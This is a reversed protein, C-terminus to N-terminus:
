LIQSWILFTSPNYLPNGLNVVRCEQHNGLLSTHASKAIRVLLFIAAQVGSAQIALDLGRVPPVNLLM